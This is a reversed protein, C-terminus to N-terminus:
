PRIKATTRAAVSRPALRAKQFSVPLQGPSSCRSGSYCLPELRLQAGPVLGLLRSQGARLEVAGVAHRGAQTRAFRLPMLRERLDLVTARAQAPPWEVFVVDIAFRMGLTHVSNCCPIALGRGADLSRLGTLGLLRCTFGTAVCLEIAAGSPTHAALWPCAAFRTM